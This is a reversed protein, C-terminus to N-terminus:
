KLNLPTNVCSFDARWNALLQCFCIFAIQLHGKKQRSSIGYFQQTM